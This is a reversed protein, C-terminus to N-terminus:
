EWQGTIINYRAGPKSKSSQVEALTGGQKLMLREMQAHVGLQGGLLGTDQSKQSDRQEWPVPRYAQHQRENGLEVDNLRTDGAIKVDPEVPPRGVMELQINQAEQKQLVNATELRQQRQQAREQLRRNRASTPKAVQMNERMRFENCGTASDVQDFSTATPHATHQHNQVFEVSSEAHQKPTSRGQLVDVLVTPNVQLYDDKQHQKKYWPAKPQPHNSSKLHKQGEREGASSRSHDRAPSTAQYGETSPAHVASVVAVGASASVSASSGMQAEMEEKLKRKEQKEHWVQERRNQKEKQAQMVNTDQNVHQQARSCDLQPWAQKPQAASKCKSPSAGPQATNSQTAQHLLAQTLWEKLDTIAPRKQPMRQLLAGLARNLVPSRGQPEKFTAQDIVKALAIMNSAEFPPNLTALEYLIVGLSWMDTKENYPQNNVQEPSLYLPTGYVSDLFETNESMHRGVGFDGIKIIDDETEFINLTKLDRHVVGNAHICQVGDVIQLFVRWVEQESLVQRAAKVHTLRRHLDGLSAFELVLV